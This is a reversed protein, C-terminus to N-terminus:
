GDEDEPEKTITVSGETPPPGAEEMAFTGQLTRSDATPKLQWRFQFREPPGDLGMLEPWAQGSATRKHLAWISSTLQLGGDLECSAGDIRHCIQFEGQYHGREATREQLEFTLNGHACGRGSDGGPAVLLDVLGNVVAYSGEDIAAGRWRTLTVDFRWRGTYGHVVYTRAVNRATALLLSKWARLKEEANQSSSAGGGAMPIVTLGTLDSPLEAQPYQCLAINHRGLRGAVLGFELMVNARPTKVSRNRIMTEDDPTIVFVAACCELLMKELAELTVFGPEFVSTWLVCETEPDRLIGCVARAQDLGETSSGVFIQRRM